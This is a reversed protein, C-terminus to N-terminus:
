RRERDVREDFLGITEEIRENLGIASMRKVAMKREMAETATARGMPKEVSEARMRREGSDVLAEVEGVIPSKFPPDDAPAAAPL